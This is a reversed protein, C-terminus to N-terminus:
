EKSLAELMGKMDYNDAFEQLHEAYTTSETGLSKMQNLIDIIDSIRYRAGANKLKLVLDVPIEKPLTIAEKIEVEKNDECELELNLLKILCDYVHELKVPKYIVYDSGSKTFDSREAGYISASVIVTKIKDNFDSKIRNIVEIGNMGPMRYDTFVIDVLDNRLSELGTFGDEADYTKVGIDNLMRSLVERSTKVDDIVLASINDAGILKGTLDESKINRAVGDKGPKLKITFYFSSGKNIESRLELKGGMIEVQKGAIALGLGTGGQNIGQEAQSFPEFVNKQSAPSIGSGTDNVSFVYNNDAEQNVTLEVHGHQTFKVANGILNILVQKLKKKDGNVILIENDTINNVRWEIEKQECKLSFLSSLDNVFSKLDFDSPNYEMRGAEIKSLDLIENIIDLLHNGSKEITSITKSVDKPLGADRKLIQSYGIIANLPTRIEHSMNALFISKTQNAAEADNKAKTLELTREDVIEELNNRIDTIEKLNMYARLSAVFTTYLKEVTLETKAKYDNIDYKTIVSKEPAAGPQGTRLIIRILPNKLTKRIYEVLKLGADDTEMVVDLMLIAADRNDHLLQKAEEGSFASLFEVSKGEFTLDSLALRTLDHVDQVDDVILAKWKVTQSVDKQPTNDEPEFLIEENDM